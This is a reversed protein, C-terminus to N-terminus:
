TLRVPKLRDNMATTAAAEAVAQLRVEWWAALGNRRIRRDRKEPAPCGGGEAGHNVGRPSRNKNKKLPLLLLM